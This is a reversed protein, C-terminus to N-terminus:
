SETWFKIAGSADYPYVRFGIPVERNSSDYVWEVNNNEGLLVKSGTWTAPAAAAPTNATATLVLAQAINSDLRGIVGLVGLAAYPFAPGTVGAKYEIAQLTLNVNVGRFVADLITDGYLDSKDILRKAFQFRLRYGEKTIGIAVANWTSTYAGAIFTGLPM